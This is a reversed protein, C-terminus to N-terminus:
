GAGIARPYAVRPLTEREVLACPLSVRPGGTEGAIRRSLIEFARRGIDRSPKAITTLRPSSVEAAMIGDFGLLAVDEPCSLGAERIAQLAGLAMLDNAAFVARPTGRALLRNMASRGGDVTYHGDELRLEELPWGETAGVARVAAVFREQATREPDGVLLAPMGLGAAVLRDLGIAVGQSIDSGVAPLQPFREASSGILVLPIQFRAIEDLGDRVPNVIVGDVRTQTLAQLHRREREPDWDSNFILLSVDDEAAADQAGRAVDAWFPNAIDPILLGIMGTRGSRLSRALDNRRFGSARVAALVKERAEESVNEAGSLVRSVTSKSVGSLRAIDIITLPASAGPMTIRIGGCEDM